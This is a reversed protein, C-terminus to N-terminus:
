SMKSFFDSEKCDAHKWTTAGQYAPSFGLSTWFPQAHFLVTEAFKIDLSKVFTRGLGNHHLRNHVWIFEVTAGIESSLVGIESSLVCVAPLILTQNGESDHALLDPSPNENTVKFVYLRGEKAAEVFTPGCANYQTFLNM